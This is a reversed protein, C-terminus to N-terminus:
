QEENPLEILDFLADVVNTPPMGHADLDKLFPATEIMDNGHAIVM